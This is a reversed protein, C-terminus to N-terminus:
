DDSLVAQGGRVVLRGAGVGAKVVTKTAFAGADFTNDVVQETSCAALLGTAAILAFARMTTM